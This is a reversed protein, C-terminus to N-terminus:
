LLCSSGYRPQTRTRLIEHGCFFDEFSFASSEPDLAIWAFLQDAKIEISIGSLLLVSSCLSMFDVTKASEKPSLEELLSIFSKVDKEVASMDVKTGDLPDESDVSEILLSTAEAQTLAFSSTTGDLFNDWLKNFSVMKLIRARPSITLAAGKGPIGDVSKIRSPNILQNFHEGEQSQQTSSTIGM